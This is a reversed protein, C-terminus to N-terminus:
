RTFGGMPPPGLPREMTIPATPDMGMTTGVSGGSSSEAPLPRPYSALVPRSPTSSSQSLSSVNYFSPTVPPVQPPQALPPLSPLSPRSPPLSPPLSPVSPPLSPLSPPPALSGHSPLSPPPPLVPGPPAFTQSLTLPVSSSSTLQPPPPPAINPNYLKNLPMESDAFIDMTAYIEKIMMLSTDQSEWYCLHSTVAFVYENFSELPAEQLVFDIRRGANLRAELGAVENEM